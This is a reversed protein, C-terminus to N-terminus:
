GRLFRDKALNSSWQTKTEQLSPFDFPAESRERIMLHSTSPHSRAVIVAKLDLDFQEAKTTTWTSTVNSVNQTDEEDDSEEDTEESDNEDEEEAPVYVPEVEEEEQHSKHENLPYVVWWPSDSQDHLNNRVLVFTKVDKRETLMRRGTPTIKFNPNPLRISKEENFLRNLDARNYCHGRTGKEDMLIRVLDVDKEDEWKELTIPDEENYCDAKPNLTM